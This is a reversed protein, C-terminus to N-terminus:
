ARVRPGARAAATIRRSGAVGPVGVTVVLDLGKLECSVVTAHQAGAVTAARGCAVAEGLPAQAAGALAALDAAARARHRAVLVGASVAVLAAFAVVAAAIGLLWVSAAGRDPSRM